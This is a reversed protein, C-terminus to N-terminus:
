SAEQVEFSTFYSASFRAAVGFLGSGDGYSNVLVPGLTVLTPGFGETDAPGILAATLLAQGVLTGPQVTCSLRYWQSPTAAPGVADIQVQAFALESAGNFRGLSFTQASFDVEVYVYSGAGAGGYNVVLFANLQDAYFGRADAPVPAFVSVAATRHFTTTDFGDWVAVSRRAMGVGNDTTLSRAPRFPFDDESGCLLGPGVPAAFTWGGGTLDWGSALGGGFCTIYPLSGTPGLVLSGQSVPPPPPPPLSPIAVVAALDSPLLGNEDPLYPSLCAEKLGLACDLVLGSGGAIPAADACGNFVLSVIGNCDPAVGAVTQVPQPDGCSLSEPRGSCGGAFQELVSPTTTGTGAPTASAESATDALRIVAVTRSVGNIERIDGVVELPTQARLRVVDVLPPATGEVGLSRVPPLTYARAARATLLGQGPKSFRGSYPVGLAGGGFVLWGGVGAQQPSLPVARYRVLDARLVSVAALPQLTADDAFTSAVQFTATVLTPTVTVAALCPYGGYSGPYRLVLDAVIDDPLRQGTDSVCSARDDLPYPKTENANYIGPHRVGV